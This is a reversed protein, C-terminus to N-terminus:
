DALLDRARLANYVSQRTVTVGYEDKLKAVIEAQSHQTHWLEDYFLKDWDIRKQAYKSRKAKPVDSRPSLKPMIGRM